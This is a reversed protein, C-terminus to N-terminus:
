SSSLLGIEGAKEVAQRRGHVDLKAYISLTHTKVTAPSVVLKEAIEKNTLRQALLELVEMERSTLPDVLVQGPEPSSSTGLQIQDLAPIPFASLIQDRYRCLHDATESRDHLTQLLHAMPPGMDLFLRVFGGPQALRLAEELMALAAPEDEEVARLLALLALTKILVLTNHTSVAYGKLQDLSEAAQQRTDPTDQWLWIKALTLPPQYFRVLPVMPLITDFQAAWQSAVGIRGQRLALEAQFAKTVSLLTTNGTELLYASASSIVERAEDPRNQAQYTMSLGFASHAFCDGYNLYPQQVVATFHEEAAALDNLHYYASGLHYHAYGKIEISGSRDYLELSQQATELLNPLDAVVWHLNCVTTLMTARFLDSHVVEEDPGQYITAYARNLDGKMLYSGALYLRALIRVIWLEPPTNKISFKAEAMTREADTQYYYLLSKLASIEGKLYRIKDPSLTTQSLAAELQGLIAPIQDYHGRHYTLWSKLMLLDPEQSAYQTPFRRLYLDLRQWQTQNMLRYRQRAVIQAARDLDGELFAHTLAEEILGHEEFWRSSRGHLAAIYEADHQRQLRYQLLDRFLHHYRFWLGGQDLPILFLNAAGLEALITQSPVFGPPPPTPVENDEQWLVADCLEANFRDLISSRLLFDQYAPSQQSLVESMLYEVIISSSTGKFRQAFSKASPLNRVSLAALRLGVAWGETKDKLLDITERSVERGLSRNLFKGAEESTFYLDATRFETMEDRARLGALPLPPDTRSTLVLHLGQPLYAILNSLLGHISPETISHYDDLAIVFSTSSRGGYGSPNESSIREKSLEQSRFLADLDNILSTMIFRSPPRQPANLLDLAQECADPFVRQIAACLYSVFLTLDNDHEDLSLWASPQPLKQLWQALLTSKGAGAQASILTLKRDMGRNLREILHPRPILDQGLRPRQLKTQILNLSDVGSNVDGFSSM